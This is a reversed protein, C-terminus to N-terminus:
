ESATGATLTALQEELKRIREDQEAVRLTLEGRDANATRVFRAVHLLGFGAFVGLIGVLPLLFRWDGSILFTGIICSFAIPLSAWGMLYIPLHPKGLDPKSYDLNLVLPKV